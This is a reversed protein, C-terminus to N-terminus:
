RAAIVIRAPPAALHDPATVPEGDVLVRGAALHQRARDKSIGAALMRALVTPAAAIADTVVPAAGDVQGLHQTGCQRPEVDLRARLKGAPYDRHRIRGDGAGRKPVPIDDPEDPPHEEWWSDRDRPRALITGQGTGTVVRVLGGAPVMEVVADVTVRLMPVWLLHTRGCWNRGRPCNVRAGPQCRESELMRPGTAVTWTGPNMGLRENTEVHPVRFAWPPNKHDAFWTPTAGVSIAKDTRRLVDGLTIGTQQVEAALTMVDGKVVVDSRTGRALSKELAVEYGAASGRRAIYEQRRRHESTMPSPVTHTGRVFSNPWHCLLLPFANPAAYPNRRLYLWAGRVRGDTDRRDWLGPDEDHMRCEIVGEVRGDEYISRLLADHEPHLPYRLTLDQALMGPLYVTVRVDRPRDALRAGPM